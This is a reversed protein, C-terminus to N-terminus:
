NSTEDNEEDIEDDDSDPEDDNDVEDPHADEYDIIEEVPDASPHEGPKYMPENEALANTMQCDVSESFRALSANLREVLRKPSISPDEYIIKCFYYTFIGHSRRGVKSNPDTIKNAAFSIMESPNPNNVKNVAQIDFVSGGAACDSVFVVKCKGNNDRAILRGFQNATVNKDKFEVGHSGFDITDRGSYFVTLNERTHFLFFQLYKPYNGQICNLLYFVKFGLRHHYLGFLYGDNMAGVKPDHKDHKFNNILILCVKDYGETPMDNRSVHNLKRGIRKFAKKLKKQTSVRRIRQFKKESFENNKRMLKETRHEYHPHKQRKDPKDYCISSDAVGTTTPVQNDEM